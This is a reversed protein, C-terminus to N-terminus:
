SKLFFPKFAAMLRNFSIWQLFTIESLLVHFALRFIASYGVDSILPAARWESTFCGVQISKQTTFRRRHVEARFDRCPQILNDVPFFISQAKNGHTHRHKLGSCGWREECWAWHKPLTCPTSQSFSQLVLPISDGVQGPKDTPYISLEANSGLCVCNQRYVCLTKQCGFSKFTWFYLGASVTLQATHEVIWSLSFIKKELNERYCKLIRGQLYNDIYFM